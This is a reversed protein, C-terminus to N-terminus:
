EFSQQISCKHGNIALEGKERAARLLLDRDRFHLLKLLIPRPPAGPPLPRTPVRHAREIAFFPTLSDKGAMASLWSELFAVPDRGEAKEPVGVLRINSRRSRNELDDVKHMLAAINLTAAKLEKQMPTLQDEVTSIRGEAAVMRENMKQLDQRVHTMDTKLGGMHLNLTTLTTNCASIASFVDRITPEAGAEEGMTHLDPLCVEPEGGGSQLSLQAPIDQMQLLEPTQLTGTEEYQPAQADAAPPSQPRPTHAFKGLRSAAEMSRGTGGRAPTSPPCQQQSPAAMKSPGSDRAAAEKIDRRQRTM